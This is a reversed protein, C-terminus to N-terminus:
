RIKKSVQIKESNGAKTRGYELLSKCDNESIGLEVM